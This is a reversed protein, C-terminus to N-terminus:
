GGYLEVFLEVSFQSNVCPRKGEVEKCRNFTYWYFKLKGKVTHGRVPQM